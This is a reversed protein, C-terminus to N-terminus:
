PRRKLEKIQQCLQEDSFKKNEEIFEAANKKDYEYRMHDKSNPWEDKLYSDFQKKLELSFETFSGPVYYDGEIKKNEQLDIRFAWRQYFFEIDKEDYGLLHGQLFHNALSDSKKDLLRRKVFLLANRKGEPRYLVGDIEQINEAKALQEFLAYENLLESKVDQLTEWIVSRYGQLLCAMDLRSTGAFNNRKSLSIAGGCTAKSINYQKMLGEKLTDLMQTDHSATPISKKQELIIFLCIITTITLLGIAVNKFNM